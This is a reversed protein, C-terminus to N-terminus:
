VNREKYIYNRIKKNRHNGIIFYYIKNKRIQRIGIKCISHNM